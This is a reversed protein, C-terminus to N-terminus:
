SRSHKTNLTSFKAQTSVSRRTKICETLRNHGWTGTRNAMQNAFGSMLLSLRDNTNGSVVHMFIWSQPKHFNGGRRVQKGSIQQLILEVKVNSCVTNLLEDELDRQENHRQIFFRGLKCIIAQDVTFIEWVFVHLPFIMLQGTVAYKSLM